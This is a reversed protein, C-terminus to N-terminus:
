VKKYVTASRRSRRMRRIMANKFGQTKHVPKSLAKAITCTGTLLLKKRVMHHMNTLINSVLVKLEKPKDTKVNSPDREVGVPKPVTKQQKKQLVKLPEIEALKQEMQVPKRRVNAQKTLSVQEATMVPNKRPRGRKKKVPEEAAVMATEAEGKNSESKKDNANSLNPVNENWFVSLEKNPPKSVCEKARPVDTTAVEKTKDIDEESPDVVAGLIENETQGVEINAVDCPNLCPAEVGAKQVNAFADDQRKPNYPANPLGVRNLLKVLKNPLSESDNKATDAPIPEMTLPYFRNQNTCTMECNNVRYYNYNSWMLNPRHHQQHQHQHQQQQQQSQQQQQQRQQQQQQNKQQNTVTLQFVSPQSTRVNQQQSKHVSLQQSTHVNLQPSDLKPMMDHQVSPSNEPKTLVPMVQPSARDMQPVKRQTNAVPSPQEKLFNLFAHEYATAQYSVPSAMIVQPLVNIEVPKVNMLPKNMQYICPQQQQQQTEKKQQQLQNVEPQKQQYEHPLYEQLKQQQRKLMLLHQQLQRQLEQQKEQKQQAEQQQQQMRLQHQKQLQEQRKQEELRQMQQLRQVQVIQQHRNQMQAVPHQQLMQLRELQLNQHKQLNQIQAELQEQKQSHQQQQKQLQLQQIHQYTQQQQNQLHQLQQQQQRQLQQAQQQQKMQKIQMLEFAAPKGTKPPTAKFPQQQQQQHQQQQQQRKQPSMDVPSLQPPSKEVQKRMTEEHEREAKQIIEQILRSVHSDQTLDPPPREQATSVASTTAVEETREKHKKKHKKCQEKHKHKKRKVGMKDAEQDLLTRMLEDTNESHQSAHDESKKDGELLQVPAVITGCTKKSKNECATYPGDKLEKISPEKKKKSKSGGPHWRKDKQKSKKRQNVRYGADYISAEDIDIEGAKLWIDELVELQEEDPTIEDHVLDEEMLELQLETPFDM